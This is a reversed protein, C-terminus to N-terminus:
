VCWVLWVGQFQDDLRLRAQCRRAGTSQRTFVQGPSHRESPCPSARGTRGRRVHCVLHALGPRGAPASRTSATRPEARRLAGALDSVSSFTTAGPDVRGPPRTTVEQLVWNNGDPDSFTARTRYSRREPDPGSVLGDPGLPSLDGVEVGGRRHLEAAEIDSAVLYAPASGPVASRLTPGLPGLVLFRPPTFQVVNPPTADLRWGLRRYFEEARAVDSLRIVIVETNMDVTEVSETQSADRGHDDTTTM